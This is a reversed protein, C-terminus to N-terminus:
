AATVPIPLLADQGDQWPGTRVEGTLFQRTVRYQYARATPDALHVDWRFRDARAAIVVTHQDRVQHAVDVYVLDVTITRLGIATLEPGVPSIDVVLDGTRLAGVNLIPADTTTWDDTTTVGGSVRTVRYRYSRDTPDSQDLAVALSGPQDFSLTVPVGAEDKAIAVAVHTLDTWTTDTTVLVTVSGAFPDPLRYVATDVSGQPIAVQRGDALQHIGSLVIRDGDRHDRFVASVSRRAPTLALDRSTLVTDGRRHTVTVASAVVRDDATSRLEVRVLGLLAELDLTLRRAVDRTPALEVETGPDVPSDTALQVRTGLLYSRDPSADAFCEFSGTPVEPTLRIAGDATGYRVDLLVAGIGLEGPPRATGVDLRFRTFFPDDAGADVLYSGPDVGGVLDGLSAQATLTRTQVRGQSFDLVDTGSQALPMSTVEYASGLALQAASDGVTRAADTGFPLAPRCMRDLLTTQVFDLAATVAAATTAQDTGAADSRVVDVQIVGGQQLRQMLHDVQERFLLLGLQYTSSVYDYVASWDVRAVVRVAPWLGEVAYRCTIGVPLAGSALGAEVMRVGEPTLSVAFAARHPANFGLVSSAYPTRVVPSTVGPRPDQRGFFVLEATGGLVPLPELVVPHGVEQALAATATAVAGDDVELSVGMRLYGGTLSGSSTFRLLQLDPGSDGLVVRPTGPFLLYRGPDDSDPAVTVGAVTRTSAALNLM